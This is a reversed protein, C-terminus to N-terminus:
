STEVEMEGREEGLEEIKNIRGNAEGAITEQFVAAPLDTRIAPRRNL